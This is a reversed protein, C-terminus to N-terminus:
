AGVALRPQSSEETESLTRLILGLTERMEDATSFRERERRTMARVLVRQLARPLAAFRAATQLDRAYARSGTAAFALLAGVAILDAQERGSRRALNDKSFGFVLVHGESALFVHGPCLTEHVVQRAHASSLASLVDIGIRVVEAPALPGEHRVLDHLTRGKMLPRVCYARGDDLLGFEAPLPVCPHAIEIAARVHREMAMSAHLVEGVDTRAVDIRMAAGTRVDRGAHIVSRPNVARAPGVLYRGSLTTGVLSSKAAAKEAQSSTM